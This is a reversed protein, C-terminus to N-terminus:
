ADTVARQMIPLAERIMARIDQFCATEQDAPVHFLRMASEIEASEVGIPYLRTKEQECRGPYVVRQWNLELFACLTTWNEEWIISPEVLRAVAARELAIAQEDFGSAALEDFYEEAALAEKLGPFGEAWWVAADTLKKTAGTKWGADVM